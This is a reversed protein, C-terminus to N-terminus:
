CGRSYYFVLPHGKEDLYKIWLTKVKPSVPEDCFDSPTVVRVKMWRGKVEIPHMIYDFLRGQQYEFRKLKFVVKKGGPSDYFESVEQEPSFFLNHKKLENEWLLFGMNSNHVRIWGKPPANEIELINKIQVWTRSELISDFPLGSTEYAYEITNNIFNSDGSIVSYRWSNKGNEVILKFTAIVKSNENPYQYIFTSDSQFQSSYPGHLSFFVVGIGKDGATALMSIVLTLLIKSDM